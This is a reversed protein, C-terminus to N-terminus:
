YKVLWCVEAYIVQRRPNLYVSEVSDYALKVTHMAWLVKLSEKINLWARWTYVVNNLHQNPEHIKKKALQKQINSLLM